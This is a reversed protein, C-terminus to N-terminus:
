QKAKFEKTDPYFGKWARLYTLFSEVYDGAEDTAWAKETEKEFHVLM